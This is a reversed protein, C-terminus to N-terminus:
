VFLMILFTKNAQRQREILYFNCRIQRATILYKLELKSLTFQPPLPNATRRLIIKRSCLVVAPKLQLALLEHVCLSLVFKFMYFKAWLGILSKLLCCSALTIYLMVINEIPSIASSATYLFM